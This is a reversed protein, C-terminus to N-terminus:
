VHARGIEAVAGGKWRALAIAASQAAEVSDTADVGRVGTGLLERDLAWLHALALIESANGRLITPRYLRFEKLIKTRLAWARSELAKIFDIGNRFYKKCLRYMLEEMKRNILVVHGGKNMFMLATDLKDVAEKISYFSLKTKFKNLKLRILYLSRM